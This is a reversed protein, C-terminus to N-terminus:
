LPQNSLDVRSEQRIRQIALVAHRAHRQTDTCEDTRLCDVRYLGTQFLRGSRIHPTPASVMKTSGYLPDEMM